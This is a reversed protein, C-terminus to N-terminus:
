ARDKEFIAFQDLAELAESVAIISASGNMSLTVAMTEMIEKSSAGATIANHVYFAISDHGGMALAIGLSILEKSKPSLAGDAKCVSQLESFNQMVVPMRNRLKKMRAILDNYKKSHDKIM